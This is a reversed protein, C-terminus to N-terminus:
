PCRMRQDRTETLLPETREVDAAVALVFHAEARALGSCVTPTADFARAREVYANCLEVLGALFADPDAGNAMAQVENCSQVATPISATALALQAMRLKMVIMDRETDSAPGAVAAVTASIWM